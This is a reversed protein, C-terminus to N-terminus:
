TIYSMIGTARVFLLRQQGAILSLSGGSGTWISIAGPGLNTVFKMYDQGSAPLPIYQIGSGNDWRWGFNAAEGATLVYNAPKNLLTVEGVM